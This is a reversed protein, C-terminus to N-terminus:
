AHYAEGVQIFTVDPLIGEPKGELGVEIVGQLDAALAVRDAPGAALPSNLTLVVTLRITQTM